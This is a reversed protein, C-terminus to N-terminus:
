SPSATYKGRWRRIINIHNKGAKRQSKIGQSSQWSGAVVLLVTETMVVMMAAQPQIKERSAM